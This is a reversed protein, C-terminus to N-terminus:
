TRRPIIFKGSQFFQRWKSLIETRQNNTRTTIVVQVNDFGSLYDITENFLERSKESFYHASSAPPRFTVVVKNINLKLKNIIEDDPIFKHVYVYEKIGPYKFIIRSLM